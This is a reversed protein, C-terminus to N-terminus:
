SSSILASSSPNMFPNVSLMKSSHSLLMGELHTVFAGTVEVEFGKGLLNGGSVVIGKYAFNRGIFTGPLKGREDFIVRGRWGVWERNRELAIEKALSHLRRSREMVVKDPLRKMVAAATGPRPWFRSVNVVDPKVEGILNVTQEFDEETESPFGCIIDTAITIQPLNKRFGAVIKKFTEANYGRKMAALVRDSGSQLPIHLFRFVREHGFANILPQLLHNALTPNMMGVRVFFDGDVGCVNQLLHPLNARRDLGYAGTDQSTLWVERCGGMVAEEVANRITGMPYSFSNGRAQRTICFSCSGLCGDNIQIISIFPNVSAKPLSAKDIRSKGVAISIRGEVASVIETIKHTGVVAAAPALERVSATQAEAMCGAIVLRKDGSRLLRRVRDRIKAETPGKVTCTNVIVADAEEAAAVTQHGSKSLIGAMIESDNVNASCGYTEIFVKM